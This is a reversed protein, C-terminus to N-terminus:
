PQGIPRGTPQGTPRGTPRGTPPAGINPPPPNKGGPRCVPGPHKGRDVTVVWEWEKPGKHVWRGYEQPACWTICWDHGPKNPGYFFKDKPAFPQCKPAPLYATLVATAGHGVPTACM